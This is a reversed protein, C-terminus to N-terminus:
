SESLSGLRAAEAADTWANLQELVPEGVTRCYEVIRCRDFVVGADASFDYLTDRGVAEAVFFMRVPEVAPMKRMWKRCFATPQLQALQDRYSTGTKCQGFAIIKGERKDAFHKWVAIDLKGDRETSERESEGGGVGNAFGIGEGLRSCLEEVKCGFSRAESSTGFVLGETGAGFYERAVDAALAEFLLTGDIGAHRRDDKMNLRTALLLYKYVNRTASPVALRAILAAGDESLEFPYGTGCLSGRSDVEAYAEQVKIETAEDIPVGTSYDNEELRVLQRLIDTM